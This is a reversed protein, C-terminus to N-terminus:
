RNPRQMLNLHWSLMCTAKDTKGDVCLVGVTDTNYCTFDFYTEKICEIFSDEHGECNIRSYVIPGSAGFASNYYIIFGGATPCLSLSIYLPFM